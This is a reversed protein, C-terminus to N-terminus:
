PGRASALLCVKFKDAEVGRLQGELGLLNFCLWVQCVLLEEQGVKIELWNFRRSPLPLRPVKDTEPDSVGEVDVRPHDGGGADYVWAQSPPM